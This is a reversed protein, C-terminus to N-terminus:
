VPWTRVSRIGCCGDSSVMAAAGRDCGVGRRAVRWTRGGASRQWEDAAARIPDVPGLQVLEVGNGNRVVFALLRFERRFDFQGNTRWPCSPQVPHFRCSASDQPLRDLISQPSAEQADEGAFEALRLELENLRRWLRDLRDRQESDFPGAHDYAATSLQRVVQQLEQRAQAFQPEGTAAAILTQRRSVIGQWALAQQWAAEAHDALETCATLYGFYTGRMAAVAELQQEEAQASFRDGLARRQIALVEDLLEAAVASEGHLQYHGATAGLAHAREPHSEPYVQRTATALEDFEARAQETRGADDDLQAVLMLCRVHQTNAVGQTERIIQVAGTTRPRTHARKSTRHLECLRRRDPNGGYGPAVARASRRTCCKSSRLAALAARYQGSEYQVTALTRLRVLYDESYLGAQEATLEAAQQAFTVATSHDALAGRSTALRSM